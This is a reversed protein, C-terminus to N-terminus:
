MNPLPRPIFGSSCTKGIDLTMPGRWPFVLFHYKRFYPFGLISGLISHDKNHPGLFPIGLKPFVGFEALNCDEVWVRVLSCLRFLGEFVFVCALLTSGIEESRVRLDEIRGWYLPMLKKQPSCSNDPIPHPKM